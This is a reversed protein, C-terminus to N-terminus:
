DLSPSGQVMQQVLHGLDRLRLPHPITAQAGAARYRDEEGPSVPPGLLVLIPLSAPLPCGLTPTLTHRLALILAVGDTTQADVMVLAPYQTPAVTPLDGEDMVEIQYGKGRLYSSLSGSLVPDQSMLWLLPTTSSSDDHMVPTIQSTLDTPTYPLYVTFCSGEGLTSTLTIHGGHLDVFRKVLGLGLGTGEYRRNLASDLQIFPDFVRAQDAEAIGIGTDQVSLCLYTPDEPKAADQVEVALTVAGGEPTFKVANSLLNILVQRLRREDVTIRPLLDPFQTSLHIAKAQAQPQVFALSSTCLAMIDIPITLDLTMQGSELKSVDLIDNILELLHSGSRDLTELAKIQQPSVPGFVEELLGEAMGLIATLPTRLEHSMAALFEDKLRTARRLDENTEQLQVEAQKRETINEVIGEIAVLHGQDDWVPHQNVQLTRPEGNPHVFRMEFQHQRDVGAVVDVLYQHVFAIDDPHWAVVQEWCFGITEAHTLGFVTGLGGSAYTLVGDDGRYSFIVFKDGIDEVLRQFQNRSQELEIEAQKRDSIEICYGVIEQPQGQADRVLSLENRMWRYHGNRHRWRYEHVSHGQQFFVALEGTVREADDPHIHMAWFGEWGVIEAPSYGVMGEINQSIFTITYDMGCTFIAAPNTALIFELREKLRQTEAESQKLGTIDQVSGLISAVQGDADRSFVTYRNFIWRPEGNATYILIENSRTEGDALANLRAYDRTLRAVQDPPLLRSFFDSGMALVEEIDYGLIDQVTGSVYLNRREQVDYVYLINPSADTIHQLFARSEKLAREARKRDRIDVVLCLTQSENVMVGGILVPIRHGERHCYEKEVASIWGQQALEAVLQRDQAEYGPPTLTDWRLSGEALTQRDYGVLTLFYDNAEVISGALDALLLGVVDSQFLQRFRSESIQLHALSQNLDAQTVQITQAMQNFISALQALEDITTPEALPALTGTALAQSARALRRLPALILRATLWGLITAVLLAGGWLWWLDRQSAQLNAMVDSRPLVVVVLWDLGHADQYTKVDAYIQEGGSELRWPMQDEIGYFSSHTRLLDQAVARLWPQKSVQAYIRVPDGTSGREYPLDEASSAVLAGTREMIFAQGQDSFELQSLFYSIDSLALSTRLVGQFQGEADQLPWLASIHLQSTVHTVFVPSWGRQNLARAAQYWRLDQVPLTHSHALQEPQGQADVLYFTRDQPQSPHQQVLYPTNPLLVQGALRGGQNLADPSVLRGYGVEMGSETALVVPPLTGDIQMQRWLLQRVGDADEWLDPHPHLAEYAIALALQQHQLRQDLDAHIRQTAQDLLETAAAELDRQASRYSLYSLTGLSAGLQVVFPVVLVWLLTVRPWKPPHTAPCIPRLSLKM